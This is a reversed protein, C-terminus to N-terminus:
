GSEEELMKAMEIKLYKRWCPKSCFTMEHVDVANDDNIIHYSYADLDAGMSKECIDCKCEKIEEVIEEGNEDIKTVKLIGGKLSDSVAKQFDRSETKM